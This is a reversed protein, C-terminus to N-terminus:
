KRYDFVAFSQGANGGEADYCLSRLTFSAPPDLPHGKLLTDFSLGGLIRFVQTLYLRDFIHDALLTNLLGAGGIMDINGFGERALAAILARGEVRSDRGCKLIRVGRAALIRVQAPDAAAGTAVYILRESGLLAEPMPLDLSGSVITVAPQPALGQTQRWELLDTFEPQDSVPLDAQAVGAALDRIYRGSTVLVDASAALEQFLRWDRPNTIAHPAKHTKTEPDPLAIRGDLSAVFSAYVFPHTPAGAPRLWGDLYLGCLDVPEVPGPFLHLLQKEVRPM